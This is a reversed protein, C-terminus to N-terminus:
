CAGADHLKISSLHLLLQYDEESLQLMAHGWLNFKSRVANLRGVFRRFKVPEELDFRRRGKLNKIKIRHPYSTRWPLMEDAQFVESSAEAIGVIASEPQKCYFYLHDGVSVQSIMKLEHPKNAAGWLKSQKVIEWSNRDLNCVWAKSKELEL